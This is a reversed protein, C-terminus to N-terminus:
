RIRMRSCRDLSLYTVHALFHRSNKESPSRTNRIGFRLDILLTRLIRAIGDTATDDSKLSRMSMTTSPSTEIELFLATLQLRITAHGSPDQEPPRSLDEVKRPEVGVRDTSRQRASGSPRREFRKSRNRPHIPCTM